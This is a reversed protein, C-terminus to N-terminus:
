LTLSNINRYKKVEIKSEVEVGVSWVLFSFHKCVLTRLELMCWLMGKCFLCLKAYNKWWLQVPLSHICVAVVASNNSGPIYEWKVREWQLWFPLYYNTNNPKKYLTFATQKNYAICSQVVAWDLYQSLQLSLKVVLFLGETEFMTEWLNGNYFFCRCLQQCSVERQLCVRVISKM